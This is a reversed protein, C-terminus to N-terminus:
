ARAERIRTALDRLRRELTSLVLSRDEEPHGSSPINWRGLADAIAEIDDATGTRRDPIAELAAWVVDLVQQKLQRKAEASLADFATGGALDYLRRAAADVAVTAEHESPIM